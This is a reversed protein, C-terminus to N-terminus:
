ADHGCVGCPLVDWCRCMSAVRAQDDDVNEGMLRAFPNRRPRGLQHLLRRSATLCPCPSEKSVPSLPRTLLCHRRAISVSRGAHWCRLIVEDVAPRTHVHHPGKRMDNEWAKLDELWFVIDAWNRIVCLVTVLGGVILAKGLLYRLIRRTESMERAPAAARQSSGQGDQRSSRESARRM